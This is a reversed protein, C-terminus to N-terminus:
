YSHVRKDPTAGLREYMSALEAASKLVPVEGDTFNEIWEINIAEPIHGGRQSRVTEGSYEEPSRSDVIVVREDDLDELINEKSSLVKKHLLVKFKVLSELPEEKVSERGETIWKQFGGDLVSVNPHGYYELTWFIRSAAHQRGEDYVVVHHNEDIGNSGFLDAIHKASGVMSSEKNPVFTNSRPINVSRSIHGNNYSEVPRADVLRVEENEIQEALWSTTVLLEPNEFEVTAKTQNKAISEELGDSSCCVMLLLAFFGIQKTM